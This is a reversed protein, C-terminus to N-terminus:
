TTAVITINDPTCYAAEDYAIDINAAALTNTTRGLTLAAIDYYRANGGSVVGLNAPSYVRSLLVDDGISLSNIYGAVAAKIQAGIETTYGMFAKLRINVQVSILTPRSFRIVHPYGYLDAVNVALTGATAVGQGKKGRIVQAIDNIDGGEVIACIAHPPLGNADPDGADNEYLKHRSVGHINAIAGDLADFPTLSSLAVSQTQRKRLQADTEAAVGVVAAQPNTVSMWGRTPTAIQSVTGALAAVPGSETCTATFLGNGSVPITITQALAWQTGNVDRILGTGIITGPEGTILVDVTSHTAGHRRIGNIKVRSSLGEGMATTPSFANYVALAANNDDHIALSLLAVLQGDKSDPELYADEGYIQRFYGTLTSLITQYDPAVPGEPTVQMALGLTDINLPM